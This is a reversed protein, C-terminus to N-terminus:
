FINKKYKFYYYIIESLQKKYIIINLLILRFNRYNIDFANCENM